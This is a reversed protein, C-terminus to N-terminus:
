ALGHFAKFVIQWRGQDKLLTLSDRFRRSGWRDDVIAVVTAGSVVLTEIQWDPVPGDPDPAAEECFATFEEANDWQLEGDVFGSSIFRPHFAKMLLDRSGRNFGTVYTDVVARIEREEEDMEKAEWSDSEHSVVSKVLARRPRSATLVLTREPGNKAEKLLCLAPGSNM